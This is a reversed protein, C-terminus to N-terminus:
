CSGPTAFLSRSFSLLTVVLSTAFALSHDRGLASNTTITAQGGFELVIDHVEELDWGVQAAM